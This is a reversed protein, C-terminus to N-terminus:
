AEIGEGEERSSSGSEEKRRSKRGRRTKCRRMKCRGVGGSVSVSVVGFCM